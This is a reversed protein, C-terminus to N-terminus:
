THHQAHEDEEPEDDNGCGLMRMASNLLFGAAFAFVGTWYVVWISM